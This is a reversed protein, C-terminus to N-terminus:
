RREARIRERADNLEQMLEKTGGKDPHRINAEAKYAADVIVESADPRVGLVAYPDRQEKPAELQLYAKRMTDAIGRKENMRMAEVAFAVCRLNQRYTTQSSCQITINTGRLEFRVTAQEGGIETPVPFDHKGIVDWDDRNWRDFQTLVEKRCRAETWNTNTQYSM